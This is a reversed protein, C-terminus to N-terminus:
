FNYSLAYIFAATKVKLRTETTTGSLSPGIDRPGSTGVSGTFGLSGSLRGVAISAGISGGTLDISRFITTETNEIPSQDAFFGAHLRVSRSVRLSGGIALNVIARAEQVVPTFTPRSVVPDSLPPIVVRQGTLESSLLDYEAVSGHYRANVELAWSSDVWAVGGILNLPYKYRFTANQDRFILDDTGGTGFQAREYVLNASGGVVLGPSRAQLGVRLHTTPEWQIGGAFIFQKTSADITVIRDLAAYSTGLLYRDTLLQSVGLNTVAFTASAGVRLQNSLRIGVGASPMSTSFSVLSNFGLIETGGSAPSFTVASEIIGPDWGVPRSFSIGLRVNRNKVIPNGVVLGFYRGVPTFRTRSTETGLGELTTATVEYGSAAANLSVKDVQVLGAPNYWNSGADGTRAVYAGGELAENQGIAVRDYNPIVGSPPLTFDQAGAPRSAAMALVVLCSLRLCFRSM